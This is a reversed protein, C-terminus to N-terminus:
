TAPVARVFDSVEQVLRSWMAPPLDHGLGEIEVYRAGPIVEATHRGGDPDILQDASGHLVLTPTDVNVLAVDRSGSAVVARYQRGSGQPDVGYDFMLEGKVRVWIPDWLEPSAWLHETRVRNELWGERDIPAAQLLADLAESSPRGFGREGTASMLSTMSIVRDPHDIALQQGIMGGMSQGLVHTQDWGADDLVAVADNAMDALNYPAHGPTPEIRTSLGVDRNDFRLVTFGANVFQELFGAEYAVMPSGLGNVLLIPIALGDSEGWVQWELEVTKGLITTNRARGSRLMRSNM